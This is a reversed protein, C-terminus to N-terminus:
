AGTTGTTFRETWQSIETNIARLTQESKPDSGELIQMSERIRHGLQSLRHTFATIATKADLPGPPLPAFLQDMYATSIRGDPAVGLERLRDAVTDSSARVLADFDDLQNRLSEEDLLNWRLHQIQLTLDVLDILTLQLRYGGIEITADDIHENM